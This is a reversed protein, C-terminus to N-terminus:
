AAGLPGFVALMQSGQQVFARLFGTGSQLQVAFDAIQFSVNQLQGRMARSASSTRAFERQMERNALASRTAMDNMARTARQTGQIFAATELSLQAQVGAIVAM